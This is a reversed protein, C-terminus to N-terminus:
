LRLHNINEFHRALWILLSLSTLYHLKFFPCSLIALDVFECCVCPTGETDLVALLAPAPATTAALLPSVTTIVSM